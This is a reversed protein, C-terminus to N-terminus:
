VSSVINCADQGEHPSRADMFASPTAWDKARTDANVFSSGTVPSYGSSDSVKTVTQGKCTTLWDNMSKQRLAQLSRSQLALHDLTKKMSADLCEQVRQLERSVREDPNLECLARALDDGVELALPLNSRLAGEQLACDGSGFPLDPMGAKTKGQEQRPFDEVTHQHDHETYDLDDLTANPLRHIHRQVDTMQYLLFDKVIHLEETVKGRLDNVYGKIFILMTQTDQTRMKHLNEVFEKYTVSGSKDADLLTFVVEMDEPGIDLVTMANAFERSSSFGAVLEDLTLEGSVDEDLSECIRMLSSKAKDFQEARLNVKRREDSDKAEQAANVIVTLILNLMGLNIAVLCGILLPGALLPSERIIPIALAGWSDGALIIQVLTLTCQFVSSLANECFMCDNYVGDAVLQRHVPGLLQVIAISFIILVMSLILVCWLIAKMASVLGYLMIHLEKFHKLVRVFRLMRSLRLLRVFALSTGTGSTLLVVDFIVLLLEQINMASYFFLLRQIFVRVACDVAYIVLFSIGLVEELVLSAADPDAAYRDTVTVILVANSVIVLSMCLDFARSTWIRKLLRKLKSDHDQHDFGKQNLPNQVTSRLEPAELAACESKRQDKRSLNAM